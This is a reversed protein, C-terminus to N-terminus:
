GGIRAAKAAVGDRVAAPAQDVFAQQGASSLPQQYPPRLRALTGYARKMGDLGVLRRIDLVAHVRENTDAGPAWARTHTWETPEVSGTRLFNYLHLELFQTLAENGIYSHSLEHLLIADYPLRAETTRAEYTARDEMFLSGGGGSNGMSFGNWVRVARTPFATGMFEELAPFGQRLTAIAQESEARLAQTPFLAVLTVEAGLPSTVRGEVWRRDRVIEGPLGPRELTALKAEIQSSLHPNRPLSNRLDTAFTALRTPLEALMPRVADSVTIAEATLTAAELDTVTATAAVNGPAEGLIWKAAARGDADTVAATPQISGSSSQFRVTVGAVGGGARDTVRVVVDSPLLLGTVGVQANGQVVAVAAPAGADRVDPDTGGNECGVVALALLAALLPPRLPLTHPM